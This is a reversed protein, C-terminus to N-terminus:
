PCRSCRCRRSPDRAASTQSASRGYQCAPRRACKTELTSPVCRASVTRCKDGSVVSKQTADFVNVVWSVIVFARTRARSAARSASPRPPPSSGSRRSRWSGPLRSAGEADIGLVHEREPIPDATPVRQPRGDTQRDREDRAEIAELRQEGAGRSASSCKRVVGNSDFMGTTMPAARRRTRRIEEAGLRVRDQRVVLVQIEQRRKKLLEVHLAVALADIAVATADRRVRRAGDDPTLRARVPLVREVLQEVLARPEDRRIEDHARAGVVREAVM